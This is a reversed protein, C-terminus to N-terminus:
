LLWRGLIVAHVILRMRLLEAEIVFVSGIVVNVVVGSSVFAIMAKVMPLGHGRDLWEGLLSLALLVDLKGLVLLTHERAHHTLALVHM